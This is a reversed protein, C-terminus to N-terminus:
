TSLYPVTQACHVGNLGNDIASFTRATAVNWHWVNGCRRSHWSWRSVRYRKERVNGIKIRVLFM